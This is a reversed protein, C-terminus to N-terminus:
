SLWVGENKYFTQDFTMHKYTKVRDCICSLSPRGNNNSYTLAKSIVGYDFNLSKSNFNVIFQYFFQMM